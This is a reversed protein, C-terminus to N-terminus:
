PMRAPYEQLVSMSVTEVHPCQPRRNAMWRCKAFLGHVATVHAKAPLTGSSRRRRATTTFVPSRTSFRNYRPM